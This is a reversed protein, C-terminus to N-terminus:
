QETGSRFRRATVIAVLSTTGDGATVAVRSFLPTYNCQFMANAASWSIANGNPDKLTFYNSGDNSGQWVATGGVGWTGSISITRDIFDHLGLAASLDGNAFNGGAFTVVAYDGSTTAQSTGGLSITANHTAM